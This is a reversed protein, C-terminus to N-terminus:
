DNVDYFIREGEEALGLLDRALAKIFEQDDKKDLDSQLAQNEQTKGAAAPHPGGGPGAGGEPPRLRQHDGRGSGPDVRGTGHGARYQEAKQTTEEEAGHDGEGKQRRCLRGKRKITACARHFPFTKKLFAAAKKVWCALIAAPRCLLRCCQVAADLWFDWLPRLLPPLTLGYLLAGLAMGTLMYLRLEGQGIRLAFWLLLLGQVAIYVADLAGTLRRNRRRRLRVTRLLDYCMASAAGLAAATLYASLQQSVHNEM